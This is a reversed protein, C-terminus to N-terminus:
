HLAIEELNSIMNENHESSKRILQTTIPRDQPIIDKPNHACMENSM